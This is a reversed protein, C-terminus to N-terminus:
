IYRVYCLTLRGRMHDFFSVGMCVDLGKALWTVSFEPRRRFHTGLYLLRSALLMCLKEHHLVRLLRTNKDQMGRIEVLTTTAREHRTNAPTSDFVGKLKKLVTILVEEETEKYDHFPNNRSLHNALEDGGQLLSETISPTYTDCVGWVRRRESPEIRM